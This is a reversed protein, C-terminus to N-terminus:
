KEAAKPKLEYGLQQFLGLLDFVEWSEVIRGEEVRIIEIGMSKIKKGTAPLGEVSGTHAAELVYRGSPADGAM